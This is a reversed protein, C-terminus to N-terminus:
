NESASRRAQASCVPHLCSSVASEIGCSAARRPPPDLRRAPQASGRIPASARPAAEAPERAPPRLEAKVDTEGAERLVKEGLSRVELVMDDADLTASVEAVDGEYVPKSFRAAATGRELWARGWHHVPQHSMYAYVNVGGVFGGKFGFRRATADDHIKNESAHSVNYAEVSYTTHRSAAM